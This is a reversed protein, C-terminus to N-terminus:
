ASCHLVLGRNLINKAANYDRVHYTGCDPCTWERDGLTLKSGHKMVHGCVSCTQTTYHPPVRYFHKGYLNAKYELKSLFDYWGCESIAKALCHNKLMNKVKLDEAFIYDQSEVYRKSIIHRFENSRLRIKAYLKAVRIRARQYNKADKLKKNHKKAGDARRGITRQARKLTADLQRRYKPNEVMQDDSNWLFNDINLDIGVVSGTEPLAKVFPTESALQLSAFYNGFADRRVTITGIRTQARNLLQNV